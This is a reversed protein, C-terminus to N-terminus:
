AIAIYIQVETNAPDFHRSDYVEFDGTFARVEESDKYYDWIQGWAEAVVEHVPGKKTTFVRYRSAPVVARAGEAEAPAAAGDVEHGIIVTYAGTADSEYDTYLAYILHALHSNAQLAAQNRFYDDWLQALRGNPGMEEANTTRVTVGALTMQPKETQFTNM